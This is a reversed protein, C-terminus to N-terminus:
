GHECPSVGASEYRGRHRPPVRAVPNCLRNRGASADGGRGGHHNQNRRPHVSFVVSASPWAFWRWRHQWGPWRTRVLRAREEGWWRRAPVSAKKRALRLNAAIARDHPALVQAREYNLIAAGFQGDRYCANGLNFLLPASFGDHELIAEYEQIAARFNGAAFAANAQEFTLGPMM